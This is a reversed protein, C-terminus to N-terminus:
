DWTKNSLKTLYLSLHATIHAVIAKLGLRNEDQDMDKCAVGGVIM